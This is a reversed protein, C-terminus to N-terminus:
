RGGEVLSAPVRLLVGLPEVLPAEFHARRDLISRQVDVRKRHEDLRRRLAPPLVPADGFLRPQQTQLAYDGLIAERTSVDWRDIEPKQIDRELSRFTELEEKWSTARRGALTEAIIRAEQWWSAFLQQLCGPPLNGPLTIRSAEEDSLPDQSVALKASIRVAEFREVKAATGDQLTVLFTAILDPEALDPVIVGALRHDDDKRFRNSRVWRVAAELLPHEEHLVDQAATEEGQRFSGPPLLSEYREQVESSRWPQPTTIRMAGGHREVTGGAAVVARHLFVDLSVGRERERRVAAEARALEDQDEGGEGIQARVRPDSARNLESDIQAEAEAVARHLDSVPRSLLQEISDAQIQGLVDGVSGLMRMQAEIKLVLRKLVEGEYSDKAYLFAITPPYTQGYRDIRGNRQEM